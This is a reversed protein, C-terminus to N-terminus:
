CISYHTILESADPGRIHAQSARVMSTYATMLARQASRQAQQMEGYPRLCSSQSCLVQVLLPHPRQVQGMRGLAAVASSFHPLASFSASRCSGRPLLGRLLLVDARAGSKLAGAPSLIIPLLPRCLDIFHLVSHSPRSPGLLKGRRGLRVEAEM